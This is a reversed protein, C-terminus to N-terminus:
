PRMAQDVLLTDTYMDFRKLKGDAVRWVHAFAARMTKGTAKNLGGYAGLSVVRDGEAIFDDAVASFNEWDRILPVILKHLVDEPQRWTGSYYPFGEAETWELAPHLLGILSPVDGRGLAAYFARVLDINANM